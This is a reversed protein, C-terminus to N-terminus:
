AFARWVAVALWAAVWPAFLIVLLRRAELPKFLPTDNQASTNM